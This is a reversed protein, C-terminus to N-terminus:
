KDTAVMFCTQNPPCIAKLLIPTNKYKSIDVDTIKYRQKHTDMYQYM